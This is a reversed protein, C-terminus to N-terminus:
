ETCHAGFLEHYLAKYRSHISWLDLLKFFADPLKIKRQAWQLKLLSTVTESVATDEWKSYQTNSNTILALESEMRKSSKKSLPNRAKEASARATM